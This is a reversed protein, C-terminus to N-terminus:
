ALEPGSHTDAHRHHPKHKGRYAPSFAKMKPESEGEETPKGREAIKAQIFKFLRLGPYFLLAASGAIIGIMKWNAKMLNISKM